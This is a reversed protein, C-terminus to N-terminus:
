ADEPAGGEPPELKALRREIVLLRRGLVRAYFISMSGAGALFGIASAALDNM